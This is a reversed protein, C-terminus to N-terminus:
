INSMNSVVSESVTVNINSGGAAGAVYVGYAANRAVVRDLVGTVTAGSGIPIVEISKDVNDLVLTNAILFNFNGNPAISIGSYRFHRVICNVIELSAGSNLTLGHTGINAGELTLGRLHVIDNPGANITIATAGSGTQVGAEGVGDNVISIGKDIVISGYGAPDLVDIEGDAATQMLANAFTRCPLALTCPNSDSGKGSVWTRTASAAASAGSLGLSLAVFVGGVTWSPNLTTM